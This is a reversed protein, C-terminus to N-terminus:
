ITNCGNPRELSERRCAALVPLLQELIQLAEGARGQVILLRARVTDEYKRIHYDFFVSEEEAAKGGVHETWRHNKAWQEVAGVDGQMLWLRARQVDVLIDDLETQDFLIAVQQAM